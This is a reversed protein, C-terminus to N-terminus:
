ESVYIYVSDSFDQFELTTVDLKGDGITIYIHDFIETMRFTKAQFTFSRYRLYFFVRKHPKIRAELFALSREIQINGRSEERKLFEYANHMIQGNNMHEYISLSM